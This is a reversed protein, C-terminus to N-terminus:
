ITGIMPDIPIMHNMNMTGPRISTARIKPRKLVHRWLLLALEFHLYFLRHHKKSFCLDSQLLPKELTVAFSLPTERNKLLHSGREKGSSDGFLHNKQLGHVLRHM